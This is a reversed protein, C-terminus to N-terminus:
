NSTHETRFCGKRLLAGGALVLVSVLYHLWLQWPLPRFLPVVLVVLAGAGFVLRVSGLDVQHTPNSRASVRSPGALLFGALGEVGVSVLVVM